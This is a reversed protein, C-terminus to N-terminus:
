LGIKVTCYNNLITFLKKNENEHIQNEQTELINWKEPAGWGPLQQPSGTLGDWYKALSLLHQERRRGKWM